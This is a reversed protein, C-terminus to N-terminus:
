SVVYVVPRLRSLGNDLGSAASLKREFTPREWPTMEESDLSGTTSSDDKQTVEVHITRLPIRHNWDDDNEDDAHPDDMDGKLGVLFYGDNEQGIQMRLKEEAVDVDPEPEIYRMAEPSPSRERAPQQTAQATQAEEASKRGGWATGYGLTMYKMWTETDGLSALLPKQDQSSTGDARAVNASAKDLSNEAAKVIPPPIGPPLDDTPNSAAPQSRHAPAQKRNEPLPSTPPKLNRRRRKKRNSTPNDRIGYAQDGYCYITEVWHSLDRLSRRSVAGLGSFVVGDSANPSRGSGVWPELEPVHLHEPDVSSKALQLPSAEGFRSVMVHVLGETRRAFDELVDRESSGWDEEGVGMGLEGGAALKMGSYIDAAPSGHLLVDWHSAFRSWYKDLISCFKDRKHKAFMTQLTSGHHLLFISHARVLQKILLAPPSVERASYEVAPENVSTSSDTRSTAAPLQTLDVSQLPNSPSVAICCGFRGGSDVM